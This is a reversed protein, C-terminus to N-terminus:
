SHSRKGSTRPRRFIVHLLALGGTLLLLEDDTTEAQKTDNRGQREARIVKPKKQPDDAMDRPSYALVFGRPYSAPEPPLM